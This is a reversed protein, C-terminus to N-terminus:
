HAYKGKYLNMIITYDIEHLSPTSEIAIYLIRGM